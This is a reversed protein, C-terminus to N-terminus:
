PNPTPRDGCKPATSLYTELDRMTLLHYREAATYLKKSIPFIQCQRDLANKGDRAFGQTRKLSVAGILIATLSVVTLFVALGAMWWQRLFPGAKRVRVM